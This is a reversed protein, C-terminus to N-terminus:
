TRTLHSFRQDFPPQGPFVALRQDFFQGPAVIKLLDPFMLAVPNILVKPLRLDPNAMMLHRRSQHVGPGPNRRHICRHLLKITGAIHVVMHPHVRSSQGAIHPTRMPQLRSPPHVIMQQVAIPGAIGQTPLPHGTGEAGPLVEGVLFINIFITIGMLSASEQIHTVICQFAHLNRLGQHFGHQRFKTALEGLTGPDIRGLKSFDKLLM